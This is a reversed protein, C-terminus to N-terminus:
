GNSSADHPHPYAPGTAPSRVPRELVKILVVTVNDKGGRDNALEILGYVAAELDPEDLLIDRIDDDSAMKSLGDTCLLYVDDVQPKDIVVDIRVRPKIGVAQYLHESGPGKLGLGKFTHDTTLQKLAERRLRYCRSDGVHGIYVRQKNPSFRAVVVTTGMHVLAPEAEARSLIAQNAMLIARAVDRGRKPVNENSETKGVFTNADFAQGITEVALASAVDGGAYGGMGDAVVYLSREQLVLYSDENRRRVKGGDSQGEASVLIRAVPSTIEEIDAEDEYTLDIRSSQAPPESPPPQSPSLLGPPRLSAPSATVVTIEVEDDEQDLRPLNPEDRAKRESPSAAGRDRRIKKLDTADPRRQARRSGGRPPVLVASPHTAKRLALGFVVLILISLIWLTLEISAYCDQRTARLVCPITEVRQFRRVRRM